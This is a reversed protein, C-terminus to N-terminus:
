LVQPQVRCLGHLRAKCVFFLKRTGIMDVVVQTGKAVPLMYSGEQGHPNPITLITDETAERILVFGAAPINVYPSM